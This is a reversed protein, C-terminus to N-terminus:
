PARECGDPVTGPHVPDDVVIARGAGVAVVVGQGAIHRRSLLERRTLGVRGRVAPAPAQEGGGRGLSGSLIRVGVVSGLRREFRPRMQSTAAAAIKKMPSVDKRAM